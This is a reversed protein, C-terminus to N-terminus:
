NDTSSKKKPSKKLLSHLIGAGELHARLNEPFSGGQFQDLLHSKYYDYGQAATKAYPIWSLVKEFFSKKRRARVEPTKKLRRGMIAYLPDSESYIRQNNLTTNSLDQPQVAGNYSVGSQILGSKLFLDLIASGLSHGVGYYEYESPPFELQFQQLSNLDRAYRRSRSLLGLGVMGDAKLDDLDTPVTGRIAVVITNGDKYFKLYPTERVLELQGVHKAANALYSQTALQQLINREPMAGGDYAGGKGYIKDEAEPAKRSLGKKEKPDDGHHVALLRRPATKPEESLNLNYMGLKRQANMIDRDTIYIEPAKEVVPRLAHTEAIRRIGSSAESAKRALEAREEERQKATKLKMGGYMGSGEVDEATEEEISEM